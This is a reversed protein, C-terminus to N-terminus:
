TDDLSRLAALGHRIIEAHAATAHARAFDAAWWTMWARGCLPCDYGLRVGDRSRTVLRRPLVVSAHCDPCGDVCYRLATPLTPTM